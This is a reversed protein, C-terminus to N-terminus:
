PPSSAAQPGFPLAPLVGRALAERTWRQTFRVAGAPFLHHGDWFGADEVWTRADVLPVGERRCLASLWADCGARMGPPYWSRFVSGEPMLLLAARVGDQRCCALLDELARAPQEALRFAGFTQHYAEHARETRTRIDEPTLGDGFVAIWGHTDPKLKEWPAVTGPRDIAFAARFRDPEILMPVLRARSWERLLRSPNSHWSAVRGIETLTLRDGQLWWEEQHPGGTQNFIPPLVEIFVFDPRVGADRLRQYTLWQRLPGAGQLGFNFVVPGDPGLAEQALGAHLGLLTRSSGLVLILPRDPREARRALLLSQKAAYEPDRVNELWGEVTAGLGLQLAALCVGTWLLPQWPHRRLRPMAEEV